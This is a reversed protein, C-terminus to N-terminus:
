CVSVDFSNINAVSANRSFRKSTEKRREPFPWLLILKKLEALDGRIAAYQLPYRYRYSPDFTAQPVCWWFLLFMFQDEIHFLRMHLVPAHLYDIPSYLNLNLLQQNRVCFSLMMM